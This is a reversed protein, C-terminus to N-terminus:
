VREFGFVEFAEREEIRWNMALVGEIKIQFHSYATCAGCPFITLNVGPQRAQSPTVGHQKVFARTFSDASDYGYMFAIDIVKEDGSQLKIATLSLKRKRIYKSLPMDAIYHSFCLESKV